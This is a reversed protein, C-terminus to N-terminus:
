ILDEMGRYLRYDDKALKFWVAPNRRHTQLANLMIGAYEESKINEAVLEEAVTERDYNDTQVIKM